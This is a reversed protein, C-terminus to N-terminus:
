KGDLAMETWINDKETLYYEHKEYPM